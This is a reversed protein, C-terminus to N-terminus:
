TKEIRQVDFAVTLREGAAFPRTGHWMTSPFLVLHGPKPEITRFPAVEPLLGGCAGLTLWGAGDAGMAPPLAIHLVSSIWGHPHVHDAHHGTAALRVSWSGAFRIPARMTNLLPHAADPPPLAAIYRSVADRIADRLRVIEPDVRSLLPGDTQTGGRVSQDLPQARAVHLARLRSVLAEYDGLMPRLDFVRVFGADGELWKWRQDDLLRWCLAVYPWLANGEHLAVGRLALAAADTLRERRILSRVHWIIASVSATEPAHDFYAAAASRDGMEDAAIAAMLAFGPQEGVARRAADIVGPIDHYREALQLTTLLAQWLAPERPMGAIATRYGTFPDAEGALRRLRALTAQGEIWTPQRSVVSAVVDIAGHLDAMAFRAAALGLVVSADTPALRRAWEFAAIADHGAELRSRAAGHAIRPDAPALARAHDLARVAVSLDGAARSSLGYVQWLLANDRHREAASRLYPLAEEDRFLSTALLGARAIAAIDHAPVSRLAAIPDAGAARSQATRHM